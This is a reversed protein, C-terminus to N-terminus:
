RLNCFLYDNKYLVGDKVSWEGQHKLNVVEICQTLDKSAKAELAVEFGESANRYSLIGILISVLLLFVNFGIIAKQRDKM